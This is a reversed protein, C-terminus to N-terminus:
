GSRFRERIAELGTEYIGAIIDDATEDEAEFISSWFVRCGGEPRTSVSFTSRYGSVPLPGDVIEYVYRLPHLAVLREMLAGGDKLTLRRHPEGEIDVREASAVAPHWDAVAEFGGIERWVADADADLEVWREIRDDTEAAHM